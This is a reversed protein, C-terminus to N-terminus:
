NKEQYLMIQYGAKLHVKVERMKKGIYQSTGQIVGKGLDSALQAGANTSINISSGLSNGMNAAIEKVANLELSGPIFIGKQGDTDYVQVEVPIIQGQHELSTINIHLRDGAIKVMGTIIAQKPLIYKGARMPELLRMRVGQGNTLTKNEHICAKITNVETLEKTGIATHFGRNREEACSAIFDADSMPQSLSSVVRKKVQGVPMAVAKGNRELVKEKLGEKHSPTEDASAESGTAQNPMYKAALEYSKELLALQDNAVEQESKEGAIRERLEELEKQMQEKEPDIKPKEYFNGLTSNIDKYASASAQISAQPRLSGGGGGYKSTKPKPEKDDSPLLDLNVERKEDEGGFLSSLDRMQQNRFDDKKELQMKEYATRKDAILGDNDGTPMTTNFGQQLKEKEIDQSSPAFILWMSCLFLLGMLPYVILKKQRQRQEESREKRPKLEKEQPESRAVEENKNEQM